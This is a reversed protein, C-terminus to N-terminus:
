HYDIILARLKRRIRYIANNVSKVGGAVELIEAIKSASLGSVYMWWVKNEFDSLSAQIKRRLILFDEEEILVQIPDIFNEGDSISDDISVTKKRRNYSRLFSVLSNGICIKAFLGFEVGGLSDDYNCVANCFAFEAEQRLDAIDQNTMGESTHRLVEAEILPKYKNVLFTLAEESGEAAKDIQLKLHTKDM